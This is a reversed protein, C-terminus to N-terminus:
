DEKDLWYKDHTLSALTDLLNDTTLIEEHARPSLAQYHGHKPSTAILTTWKWDQGLDFYTVDVRYTTGIPSAMTLIRSATELRKYEPTTEDYIKIM